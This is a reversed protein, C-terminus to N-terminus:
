EDLDFKIIVKQAKKCDYKACYDKTSIGSAIDRESGDALFSRGVVEVLPLIDQQHKYVMKEKDFIHSFISKARNYSLDLNYKIAEQHEPNLSSPSIYKGKYTPSAFGVIKISNIKKAIKPNSLLSESYAPMFKELTTKMQDKLNARGTDFYEEGFSLLVDGTKGDVEAKLGARALNAKISKVLEKKANLKKQASKLDKSLGKNESKLEGVSAMARNEADKSKALEAKTKNLRSKSENVAGELSAIEQDMAEKESELKKRFEEIKKARARASMRQKKLQDNFEKKAQSQQNKFDDRMENIEQIKKQKQRELSVITSDAEELQQEKEEIVQEAKAISQQASELQDKVQEKTEELKAIKQQSKKKWKRIAKNMQSKTIENKKFAKQLKAVTQDLDKNVKKIEKENKEIQKEKRAVTSNLKRIETKKEDIVEDQKVLIKDKRVNRKAAVLNSNIVNKIMQQYKNLAKEKKENDKAAQRLQEKETKAEDQLLDLQSMLEEYTQKESKTAGTALYNDKQTNFIENESKLRQNEKKIKEYEINKQVSYTGSRLGSVVYLLLFVLSLVMFLDSYSAWFSGEDGEKTKLQDYDFSM